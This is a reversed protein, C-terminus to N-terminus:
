EIDEIKQISPEGDSGLNDDIKTQAMYGEMFAKIQYNTKLAFAIDSLKLQEVNDNSSLKEIKKQQLAQLASVTATQDDLLKQYAKRRMASLEDSSSEALWLRLTNPSVHFISATRSINGSVFYAVLIREKRELKSEAEVEVPLDAPNLTVENTLNEIKKKHHSHSYYTHEM